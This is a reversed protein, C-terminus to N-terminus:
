EHNDYISITNSAPSAVYCMTKFTCRVVERQRRDSEESHPVEGVRISIYVIKNEPQRDIQLHELTQWDIQRVGATEM